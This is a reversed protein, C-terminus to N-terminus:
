KDIVRITEFSGFPVLLKDYLVLDVPEPDVFQPEFVACLDQRALAVSIGDEEITEHVEQVQVERFFARTELERFSRVNESEDAAVGEYAEILLQEGNIELMDPVFKEIAVRAVVLVRDDDPPSGGKNLLRRWQPRFRKQVCKLGTSILYLSIHYLRCIADKVHNRRQGIHYVAGLYSQM